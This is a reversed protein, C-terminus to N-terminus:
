FDKLYIKTEIDQHCFYKKILVCMVLNVFQRKSDVMIFRVQIQSRSSFQLAFSQLKRLYLDNYFTILDGRQEGPTFSTTSGSLQNNPSVGPQLRSAPM